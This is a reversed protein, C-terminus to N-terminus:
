SEKGFSIVEGRNMSVWDRGDLYPQFSQVIAHQDAATKPRQLEYLHPFELWATVGHWLRVAAPGTPPDILVPGFLSQGDPFILTPVGFGGSDIV